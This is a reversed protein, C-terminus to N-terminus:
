GRLYKTGRKIVNQEWEQVGFEKAFYAAATVTDLDGQCTYVDISVFGESPFTHISIHSEAIMVMGSYGGLDKQGNGPYHVVYPTIIKKMNLLEPIVDLSKFVRHMDGLKDADAGYGDLTLHTGFRPANPTTGLAVTTRVAQDAISAM